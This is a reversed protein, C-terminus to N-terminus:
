VRFYSARITTSVDTTCAQKLEAKDECTSSAANCYQDFSCQSTTECKEEKVFFLQSHNKGLANRKKTSSSRWSSDRKQWDFLDSSEDRKDFSVTVDDYSLSDRVFLSPSYPRSAHAARAQIGELQADANVTSLLALSAAFLFASPRTFLMTFSYTPLVLTSLLFPRSLLSLHLHTLHHAALV